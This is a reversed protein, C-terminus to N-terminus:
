QATSMAQTTAPATAANRATGEASFPDRLTRGAIAERYFAVFEPHLLGERVAVFKDIGGAADFMESFAPQTDRWERELNPFRLFQNRTERFREYMALNSEMRALM